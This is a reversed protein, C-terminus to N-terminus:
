IATGGLRGGLHEVGHMSKKFQFSSAGIGLRRLQYRDGNQGDFHAAVACDFGANEVATAVRTDYDNPAGNPYCFTHVQKGLKEEIRIKSGSIESRLEIDSLCTLRPHNITHAGIEIGAESIVRIEDWNVSEYGSTPSDPCKVALFDCIKQLEQSRNDISRNLLYEVLVDWADRRGAENDLSATSAAGYAILNLEDRNTHELAYELLDPWLWIRGDIFGTTVFFTAPVGEEQLVPFAIDYFDQYGDDVTIVVQDTEVSESKIQEALEALTILRFYKKLTRLQQRFTEGSLRNASDFEGFRHYMLIRLEHRTLQRALTYLGLPGAIRILRSKITSLIRM